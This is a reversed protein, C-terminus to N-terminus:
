YVKILIKELMLKLVQCNSLELILLLAPMNVQLQLFPLNFFKHIYKLGFGNRM